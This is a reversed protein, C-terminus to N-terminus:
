KKGEIFIRAYTNVGNILPRADKINKSKEIGVIDKDYGASSAMGIIKFQEPNYKDLFTVPVGMIGYYDLPIDTVKNVNIANYNDYKPYEDKNYTKYLILNEHRKKHDLNTFWVSPSRGKVVGNVIKYASGERKNKILEKAYSEPVDFLMDVSMSTNGLWMKNEKILSFIEKYTIANKNGIILFKKKFTILQAVYERFLSFPPNTVVIDTQKLLEICEPSRFDGDSKFIGWENQKIFTEYDTYVDDNRNESDYICFVAQEDLNQTFLDPNLNKYCTAILRKLGLANFRSYFFYFFQSVRPDDCNCLVTKGKFYNLYHKVENEIDVLQTYFEDIKHKRANDLVRDAM